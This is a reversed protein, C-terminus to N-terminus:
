TWRHHAPVGLSRSRQSVNTVITFGGVSIAGSNIQGVFASGPFNDGPGQDTVITDDGGACVADNCIYAILAADVRTSAGLVCLLVIAAIFLSLQFKM